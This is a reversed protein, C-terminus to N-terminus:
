KWSNKKGATLTINDDQYLVQDAHNYIVLKTVNKEATKITVGKEGTFVQVALVYGPKLQENKVNKAVEFDAYGVYSITVVSSRGSLGTFTNVLPSTALEKTSREHSITGSKKGGEHHEFVFEVDIDPHKAAVEQAPSSSCILGATM